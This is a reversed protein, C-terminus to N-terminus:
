VGRFYASLSNTPEVTITVRTKGSQRERALRANNYALRYLRHHRRDSKAHESMRAATRGHAWVGDHVFYGEGRAFPVCCAAEEVARRAEPAWEEDNVLATNFQVFYDELGASARAAYARAAYEPPMGAAQAVELMRDVPLLLSAGEGKWVDNYVNFLYQGVFMDCHLPLSGGTKETEAAVFFPPAAVAEAPDDVHTLLFDRLLGILYLFSNPTHDKMMGTMVVAGEPPLEYRFLARGLERMEHRLGIDRIWEAPVHWSRALLSRGTEELERRWDAEEKPTAPEYLRSEVPPLDTSLAAFRAIPDRWRDDWTVHPVPVVTTQDVVKFLQRSEIM